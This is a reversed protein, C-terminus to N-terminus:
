GSVEPPERLDELASKLLDDAPIVLAEAEAVAEEAPVRGASELRGRFGDAASRVADFEPSGLLKEQVVAVLRGLQKGLVAGAGTATLLQALAGGIAGKASVLTLASVPGPVAILVIALAITGVGIAGKINPNIGRCEAEVKANWTELAGDFGDVVAKVSERLEANWEFERGGPELGTWRRVEDWFASSRVVHQVEHVQRRGVAEFYSSGIARRDTVERESDARDEQPTRVIAGVIPMQRLASQLRHAQANLWERSESIRLVRSIVELQRRESPTMLASMCDGASPTTREVAARVSERLERLRCAREENQNLVGNAAMAVERLLHRTRDPKPARIFTHVEDLTGPPFRCFGRGRRFELVSMGEAALRDAQRRLASRDSDALAGERTRNFLVLRQQGIRASETRLKSISQRDFWREHDVVVVLRDFWPLLTLSVDGEQRAAESTFDPLDFLLVERLANITHCLIAVADPEGAVNDDLEVSIQRHGPLL